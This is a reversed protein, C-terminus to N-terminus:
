VIAVTGVLYYGENSRLFAMGTEPIAKKEQIPRVFPLATHGNHWWKILTAGPVATPDGEWWIM